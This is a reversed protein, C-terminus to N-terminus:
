LSIIMGERAFAVETIGDGGDTCYIKELKELDNDTRDPDHHFLLLKKVGVRNASEIAHEMSSHGWNVRGAKYEDRTYQADHILLDAGSFFEEIAENQERAVLDGEYAMMEDYEPHNPDTIFLNRFPEHDYCTCVVKGNYEFRYGLSTIPHNLLKTSVILGGGMDINPTEKIRHYSINSSLEGVNVPFYRYKMQGGVVEELPDEEFSVPGYVKMETTPLYIPVFFPFGMIHDWHTHSLFLDISIPGKPLDNKMLQNGLSRIGSGGDIIILREAEGVRIEICAGNGGYKQTSPGPCPISGRVGWLQVLLNNTM